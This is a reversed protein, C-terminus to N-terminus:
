EDFDDDIWLLTAVCDYWSLYRSDELIDKNKGQLQPLWAEAPTKVMKGTDKSKKAFIEGAGTYEHLEGSRIYPWFSESKHYWKVTNGVSLVLGVPESTYSVYQYATSVRSTNFEEALNDILALSPTKGQIRPCFLYEPMLLEAAFLNAESEESPDNWVTFQKVTDDHDMDGKVHLRFHGIEHAATFREQWHTLGSKVRITGGKAKSAVIRGDSNALGGVEIKLKGATYALINLNIESPEEVWLDKLLAIASAKCQNKRLGSLEAKIKSSM